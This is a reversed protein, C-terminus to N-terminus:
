EQGESTFAVYEGGVIIYDGTWEAGWARQRESYVLTERMFHQVGDANYSSRFLM